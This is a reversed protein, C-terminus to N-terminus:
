FCMERVSEPIYRLRVLCHVQDLLLMDAPAEPILTKFLDRVYPSLEAQTVTEPIGKLRLNNRRARDEADMIKIEMDTIQQSFSQMHDTLDNHATVLGTMKLETNLTM